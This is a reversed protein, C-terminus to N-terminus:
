RLPGPHADETRRRLPAHHPALVAQVDAVRDVYLQHVGVDLPAEDVEGARSPGQEVPGVKAEHTQRSYNFGGYVLALIGAALLVIAFMNTMTLRRRLRERGLIATSKERSQPWTM